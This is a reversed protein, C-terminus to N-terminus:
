MTKVAAILWGTSGRRLAIRHRSPQDRPLPFTSGAKEAARMSDLQDIVDLVVRQRTREVVAVQGFILRVGRVTLGRDRYRDLMRRDANLVDSSAMYVHTLLDADGERWAATRWRDLRTLLRKWPGPTAVQDLRATAASVTRVPSSSASAHKVVPRAPAVSDGERIVDPLLLALSAMVGLCLLSPVLSRMVRRTMAPTASALM